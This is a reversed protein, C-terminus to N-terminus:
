AVSPPESFCRRVLLDMIGAAEAEDRGIVITVWM